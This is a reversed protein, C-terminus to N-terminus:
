SFTEKTIARSISLFSADAEKEALPQHWGPGVASWSFRDGASKMGARTVTSTHAVRIVNVKGALEFFM